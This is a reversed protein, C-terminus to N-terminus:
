YVYGNLPSSNEKGKGHKCVVLFFILTTSLAMTSWSALEVVEFKRNGFGDSAVSARIIYCM